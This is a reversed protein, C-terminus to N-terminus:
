PWWSYSHPGGTTISSPSATLPLRLEGSAVLHTRSLPQSLALFPERKRRWM